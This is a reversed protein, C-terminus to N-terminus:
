ETELLYDSVKIPETEEKITVLQQTSAAAAMVVSSRNFRTTRHSRKSSLGVMRSSAASLRSQSTQSALMTAPQRYRQNSLSSGFFNNNNYSAVTKSPTAGLKLSSSEVQGTSFIGGYAASASKVSLDSNNTNAVSMKLQSLGNRNMSVKHADLM